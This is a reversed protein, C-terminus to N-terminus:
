YRRFSRPAPLHTHHAPLQTVREGGRRMGVVLENLRAVPLSGDFATVATSTEQLTENLARHAKLAEGLAPM